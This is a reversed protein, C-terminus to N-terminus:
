EVTKIADLKTLVYGSKHIVHDCMGQEVVNPVFVGMVTVKNTKLENPLPNNVKGLDDSTGIRVGINKEGDYLHRSSPFDSVFEDSTTYKATDCGVGAYVLNTEYERLEGSIRIFRNYYADPDNYLADLSTDLIDKATLVPNNIKPSPILSDIVELDDVKIGLDRQARTGTLKVLKGHLNDERNIGKLSIGESGTNFTYRPDNTFFSYQHVSGLRMDIIVGELQVKTGEVISFSEFEMNESMSIRKEYISNACTDYEEESVGDPLGILDRYYNGDFEKDLLNTYKYIYELMTRDCDLTEFDSLPFCAESSVTSEKEGSTAKGIVFCIPDSLTSKPKSEIGIEGTSEAREKTEPTMCIGHDYIENDACGYSECDECNEFYRTNIGVPVQGYFVISIVPFIAIIVAALIIVYYRTKM